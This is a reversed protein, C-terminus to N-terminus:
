ERDVEILWQYAAEHNEFYAASLSGQPFFQKLAQKVAYEGYYNQALVISVFAEKGLSNSLVPYLEQLAWDFDKPFIMMSKQDILWKRIGWKLAIDVIKHGAKRFEESSTLGKWFIELIQHEQSAYVMMGKGAFVRQMEFIHKM